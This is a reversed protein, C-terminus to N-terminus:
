ESFYGEMGDFSKRSEKVKKEFKRPDKKRDLSSPHIRINNRPDTRDCWREMWGDGGRRVGRGWWM